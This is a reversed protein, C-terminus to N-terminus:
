DITKIPDTNQIQTHSSNNEQEIWCNIKKMEAHIFIFVILASVSDAVPGAYLIGNLGFFLPLILILPVLLILQRLASLISAKLPQGTAQFFSTSIIQFGSLFVAFTFIRICRVAFYTFNESQTGFLSLIQVPFIQCVLWGIIIVCSAASVALYYCRKLRHPQKAGFNFGIIPQSGLGVGVGIAVLIMVIKMVIGMASLAIDSGVQPDLNGYYVLSNNMVTQTLTASGHTIASSLGLAMTTRWLRFNPKLYKKRLRMHKAHKLFYITLIFFTIFQSTITAIAAGKVGWGLVFIYIPDLICNLVAGILVSYMSMRPSGDARALNSLTIGLVGFPAGLLIISAYDLAYPMISPTAGFLTLMPKLFIHGLIMIIFGILVALIYQNTLTKEAEDDKKQGLKISAYASAGIGIMSAFALIITMIPFAVTTAANGLYGVGQGIFIQDVINYISNILMQVISPISFSLLLKGVPMYGLPNGKNEASKDPPLTNKNNTM